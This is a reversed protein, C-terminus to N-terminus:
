AALNLDEDCVSDVDVLMFLPGKAKKLVTCLVKTGVRLNSFKYSFAREGSDLQIFVGKRCRDLVVGYASDFVDYKM